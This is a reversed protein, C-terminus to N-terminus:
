HKFHLYGDPFKDYDGWALDRSRTDITTCIHFVSTWFLHCPACVSPYTPMCFTGFFTVDRKIEVMIVPIVDLLGLSM